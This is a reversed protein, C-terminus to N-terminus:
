PRLRKFTEETLEKKGEMQMHCGLCSLLVENTDSLQEVDGQYHSRLHRHAWTLGFNGSCGELRVECTQPRDEAIWKEKLIKNAKKNAQTRNM